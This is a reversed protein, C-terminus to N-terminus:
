NVNYMNLYLYLMWSTLSMQYKRCQDPIIEKVYLKIDNLFALNIYLTGLYFRKKDKKVISSECSSCYFHHSLINFHIHVTQYSLKCRRMTAFVSTLKGIVFVNRSAPFYAVAISKVFDQYQSFYLENLM